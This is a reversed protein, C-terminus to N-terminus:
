YQYNNSTQARPTSCADDTNGYHGAAHAAGPCSTTVLSGVATDDPRQRLRRLWGSPIGPTVAPSTTTSPVQRSPTSPPTTLPTSPTTAETIVPQVTTEKIIRQADTELRKIHEAYEASKTVSSDGSMILYAKLDNFGSRECATILQNLQVAFFALKLNENKTDKPPKLRTKLLEVEGALQRSCPNLPYDANLMKALIVQLAQRLHIADFQTVTQLIEVITHGLIGTPRPNNASAAIFDPQSLGVPLWYSRFSAILEEIKNQLRRPITLFEKSAPKQFRLSTAQRLNRVHVGDASIRAANINSKFSCVVLVNYPEDLVILMDLETNLGQENLKASVGNMPEVGAFFYTKALVARLDIPKDPEIINASILHNILPIINQYLNFACVDEIVTGGLSVYLPALEKTTDDFILSDINIAAINLPNFAVSLNLIESHSIDVCFKLDQLKFLTEQRRQALVDARLNEILNQIVTYRAAEQEKRRGIETILSGINTVNYKACLANIRPQPLGPNGLPKLDADLKQQCSRIVNSAQMADALREAPTVIRTIEQESSLDDTSRVSSGMPSPMLAVTSVPSADADDSRISDKLSKIPTQGDDADIAEFEVPM